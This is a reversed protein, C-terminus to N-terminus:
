SPEKKQTDKTMQEYEKKTEELSNPSVFVGNFLIDQITNITSKGRYKAIQRLRTLTSENMRIVLTKLEVYERLYILFTEVKEKSNLIQTNISLDKMIINIEEKKLGLQNLALEVNVKNLYSMKKLEPLAKGQEDFYLLNKRLFEISDDLTEKNRPELEKKEKVINRLKINPEKKDQESLAKYRSIREQVYRHSKSLKIALERQSMNTDEITKIFIEAEEQWLMPKRHLNHALAILSVEDDSVDMVIAHIKTKCIDKFIIHKDIVGNYDSGYRKEISLRRLAELRRHGDILGYRGNELKKVSVPQFIGQKKIIDMLQNISEDENSSFNPIHRIQFVDKDIKGWEIEIMKVM